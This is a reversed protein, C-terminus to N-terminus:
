VLRWPLLDLALTIFLLAGVAAAAVLRHFAALYGIDRGLREQALCLLGSFLALVAIVLPWLGPWLEGPLGVGLAFPAVETARALSRGFAFYWILCLVAASGVLFASSQVQTPSLVPRRGLWARGLWTLPWLLTSLALALAAGVSLLFVVGRPLTADAKEDYIQVARWLKGLPVLETTFVLPDVAAACSTDPVAAPDALFGAIIANPCAHAETLGHGFGAFEVYRASPGLKEAVFRGNAPTTVPDLSGALILTPVSINSPTQPQEPLHDSWRACMEALDAANFNRSLVPWQSEAARVADPSDFGGRERCTIAMYAAEGGQERQFNSLYALASLDTARREIAADIMLPVLAMERRNYMLQFMGSLFTRGSITMRKGSPDGPVEVALPQRELSLVAKVLAERLNPFRSNCRTDAACLDALGEYARM